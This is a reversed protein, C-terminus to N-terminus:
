RSGSVSSGHRAAGAGGGGGAGEGCGAGLGAGAGCGAGGGGAWCAGEGSGGGAGAASAGASGVGGTSTESADAGSTPLQAPARPAPRHTPQRRSESPAACPWGIAGPRLTRGDTRTWAAYRQGARLMTSTGEGARVSRGGLAVVTRFGSIAGGTTRAVAQAVVACPRSCDERYTPGRQRPAAGSGPRPELACRRARLRASTERPDDGQEEGSRHEHRECRHKAPTTHACSARRAAGLSM